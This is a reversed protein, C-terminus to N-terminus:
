VVERKTDQETILEDVTCDLAEAVAKIKEITPSCKSWGAITGNGLGAKREVSRISLGNKKYIEKIRKYITHIVEM